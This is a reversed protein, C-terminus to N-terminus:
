SFSPPSRGDKSLVPFARVALDLAADPGTVSTQPATVEAPTSSAVLPRHARCALCGHDAPADVTGATARIALAHDTPASDPEPHLGFASSAAFCAAVLMAFRIGRLCRIKEMPMLMKGAFPICAQGM